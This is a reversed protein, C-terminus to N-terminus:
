IVSSFILEFGKALPKRSSPMFLLFYNVVSVCVSLYVCKVDNYLYQQPDLSFKKKRQLCLSALCFRLIDTM